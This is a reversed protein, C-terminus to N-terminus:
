SFRRRDAGPDIILAAVMGLVAVLLGSCVLGTRFGTTPDAAGDVVLGMALPACLGALTHLSNTMGLMAGRQAAPSIEGILTSGLTFIVSGLSFGLGILCVKLIGFDALSMCIMAIGAVTVCLGGLVGRSLRTSLGRRTLSRSLMAVAPALVLQMVSPLGVIWATKAATVHVAKILYNALWTINLAILWYAGFGALFVGLATRSLLLRRYPVREASGAAPLTDVPGDAAMALWLCSWILGTVGLTVFAARWGHRAIIWTIFPAVVGTGFAAGCAVISTPLERQRDGFWKYVAHIAMPFSPGEAAGLVVRSGLLLGFSSVWGIPILAAGWVLAMSLMLTKTRVHNALFGVTIGSASFLLFFASGLEGFQTNSLGLDRMLPVSSLGIVAKDAYNVLMFLFVLVVHTWALRRDVTGIPHSTLKLHRSSGAAYGRKVSFKRPTKM